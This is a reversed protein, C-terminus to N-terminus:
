LKGTQTGGNTTSFHEVRCGHRQSALQQWVELDEVCITLMCTHYM